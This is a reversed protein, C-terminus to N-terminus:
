REAGRREKGDRWVRMTCRTTKGEVSSVGGRGGGSQVGVLTGFRM